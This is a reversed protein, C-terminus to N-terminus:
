AHLPYPNSPEVGVRCSVVKRVVHNQDRRAWFVRGIGDHQFSHRLQAVSERVGGAPFCFDVIWTKGGENWESPHMVFGPENLFRSECDPALHAWIVYGVPAGDGRFFFKIQRHEIAPIIWFKLLVIHLLSYRRCQLMILCAFGIQKAREKTNLARCDPHLELQKM